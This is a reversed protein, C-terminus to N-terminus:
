IGPVSEPAKDFYRRFFALIQNRDPEELKLLRTWAAVAIRSDNQPRHTVVISRPFLSQIERFLEIAETDDADRYSLWIHGHELNHVLDEDALQQTYFQTRVPTFDHPGSTPPNSNYPDHLDGLNIHDRGLSEYAVSNDPVDDLDIEALPTTSFRWFVFAAFIVIAAVIGTIMTMRQKQSQQQQEANREKLRTKRSM